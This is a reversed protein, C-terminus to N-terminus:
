LSHKKLNIYGVNSVIIDPEQVVVSMFAFKPISCNVYETLGKNSTCASFLITRSEHESRNM